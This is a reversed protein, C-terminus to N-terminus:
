QSICGRRLSIIIPCIFFDLVKLYGEDMFIDLFDDLKEIEMEVVDFDATPRGAQKLTETYQLDVHLQSYRIINRKTVDSSALIKAHNRGNGLSKLRRLNMFLSSM